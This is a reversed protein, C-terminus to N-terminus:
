QRILSSDLPPTDIAGASTVTSQLGVLQTVPIPWVTVTRTLPWKRSRVGNIPTKKPPLWFTTNVPWDTCFRSVKGFSLGFGPGVATGM